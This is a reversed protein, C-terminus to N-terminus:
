GDQDLEKMLKELEEDANTEDIANEAEEVAKDISKGAEDLIAEVDGEDAPAANSEEASCGALVLPLACFIATLAPNPIM